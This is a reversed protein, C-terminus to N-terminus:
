TRSTAAGSSAKRVDSAHEQEAGRTMGIAAEAVTVLDASLKRVAQAEQVLSPLQDPAAVAALAYLAAADDSLHVALARVDDIGMRLIHKTRQEVAPPAAEEDDRSFATETRVRQLFPLLGTRALFDCFPEFPPIGLKARVSSRQAAVVARTSGLQQALSDLDMRDRASLVLIRLEGATLTSVKAKLEQSPLFKATAAMQLTEVPVPNAKLRVIPLVIPPDLYRAASLADVPVAPVLDSLHADVEPASRPPGSRARAPPPM